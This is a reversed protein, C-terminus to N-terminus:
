TEDGEQSVTGIVIAIAADDLLYGRQVSRSRGVENQLQRAVENWLEVSSM